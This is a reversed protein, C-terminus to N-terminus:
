HALSQTKLSGDSIRRPGRRGYRRLRVRQAGIPQTGKDQRYNSEQRAKPTPYSLGLKFPQGLRRADREVLKKQSAVRHCRERRLQAVRCQGCGNRIDHAQKDCYVSILTAVGFKRYAIDYAGRGPQVYHRATPGSKRRAERHEGVDLM